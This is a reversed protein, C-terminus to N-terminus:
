GQSLGMCALLQMHAKATASSFRGLRPLHSVAAFRQARLGAVASDLAATRTTAANHKIQPAAQSIYVFCPPVCPGDMLGCSAQPSLRLRRCSAPPLPVSATAQQSLQCVGVPLQCGILAILCQATDSSLGLGHCSRRRRGPLRTPLQTPVASTM